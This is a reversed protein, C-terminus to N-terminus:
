ILLFLLKTNPFSNRHKGRYRAQLMRPYELLTNLKNYKFEIFVLTGNDGDAQLIRISGEAEIISNMDVGKKHLNPMSPKSKDLMSKIKWRLEM